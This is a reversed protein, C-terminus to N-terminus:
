YAVATLQSTFPVTISEKYEPSLPGAPFAYIINNINGHEDYRTQLDDNHRWNGDVVFKFEHQKTRDIEVVAVFDNTEPSFHMEHATAQWNDFDGTVFVSNGGHRWHFEIPIINLENTKILPKKEKLEGFTTTDDKLVNETVKVDRVSSVSMESDPKLESLTGTIINATKSGPSIHTVTPSSDNVVEPIARDKKLKKSKDKKAHKEDISPKKVTTKDPVKLGKGEVFSVLCLLAFLILELTLTFIKDAWFVPSLQNPLPM